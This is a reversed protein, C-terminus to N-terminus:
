KSQDNSEFYKNLKYLTVPQPKVRGNEIMSLTQVSIGTKRSVEEQTKSKEARFKLLELSANEKTLM